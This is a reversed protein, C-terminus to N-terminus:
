QGQGGHEKVTVTIRDTEELEGDSVTLEVHYTGKESFSHTVVMGTANTGDDFDWSFNLEDGEVDYTGSANFTVNEDVFVSVHKGRSGNVVIDIAPARNEVMNRIRSKNHERFQQQHEHHHSLSSIVPLLKYKEGGGYKLISNNLDIEVTITNNGEGIKFLQQIKLTGSPVDFFVTENTEKLVGTANDVVIWLKTYNGATINGVGLTENLNQIHLYLLDVTKPESTINVWGSDNGSKHLRIESFTVNVHIFDDTPKDGVRIETFAMKAEIDEGDGDQVDVCGSAALFLGVIMGIVIFKKKM